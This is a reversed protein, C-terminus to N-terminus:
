VEKELNSNISPGVQISKLSGTEHVGKNSSNNAKINPEFLLHMNNKKIPEEVAM